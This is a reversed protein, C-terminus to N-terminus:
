RDRHLIESSAREILSNDLGVGYDSAVLLVAPEVDIGLLEQKKNM